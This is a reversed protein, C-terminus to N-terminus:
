KINKYKIVEINNDLLFDIGLTNRYSNLYIVKKIPYKIIQKSCNLCPSLTCMLILESNEDFNRLKNLANIEAHICGCMGSGVDKCGNEEGPLSGNYGISYINELSYPVILCGVKKRICTSRNSINKTMKMFSYLLSIRQFFGFKNNYDEIIPEVYDDFTNNGNVIKYTININKLFPIAKEMRLIDNISIDGNIHDYAILGDDTDVIDPIYVMNSGDEGVYEIKISTLDM